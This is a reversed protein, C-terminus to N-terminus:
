LEAVRAAARRRSWARDLGERVCQGVAFRPDLASRSDQSVLQVRRRARRAQWFPVAALDVGAIRVAGTSPVLGVIARAVTSKGSGSEGVLGLVSGAAVDFFVGRVATVSGYRVGLDEVAIATM